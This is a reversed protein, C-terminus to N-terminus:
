NLFRERLQNWTGTPIQEGSNHVRYAAKIDEFTVREGAAIRSAVSAFWSCRLLACRRELWGPPEPEAVLRGDEVTQRYWQRNLIEAATLVSNHDYPSWGDAIVIRNTDVTSCAIISIGYWEDTASLAGWKSVLGFVEHSMIQRPAAGGPGYPKVVSLLPHKIGTTFTTIRSHPGIWWTLSGARLQTMSLVTVLGFVWSCFLANCQDPSGCPNSARPFRRFSHVFPLGFPRTLPRRLLGVM